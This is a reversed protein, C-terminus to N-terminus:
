RHMEQFTLYEQSVSLEDSRGFLDIEVSVLLRRGSSLLVVVGNGSLTIGQAQGSLDLGEVRFDIVVKNPASAIATITQDLFRDEFPLALVDGIAISANSANTPLRADDVLLTATDKFSKVDVLEGNVWTSRVTESTGVYLGPSVGDPTSPAPCGIICVSTLLTIFVIRTSM